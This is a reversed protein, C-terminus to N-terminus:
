KEVFFYDGKEFATIGEQYIKYPDIKLNPDYELKEKKSCSLLLFTISFIILIKQFM